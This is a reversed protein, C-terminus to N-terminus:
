PVPSEAQAQPTQVIIEVRRNTARGQQTGNDGLPRTDAYGVASLRQSGIGNAEMYRVVSGARAGSLEWNSPYRYSRIPVSDTHGEIVIPHTSKQLVAALQRLVTLGELGLDAGGSNFLIESNIRFSVSQDNMVVDINDGLGDLDLGHNGKGQGEGL